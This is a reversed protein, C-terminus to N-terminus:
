GGLHRALMQDLGANFQGRTLVEDCGAEAAAALRQEHVHPAYAIIRAQPSKARIGPVLEAPDLGPTGLDLIVLRTAEDLRELLADSRAVATVEAGQAKAAGTVRSTFMLDGSLFVGSV